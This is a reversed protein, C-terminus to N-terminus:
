GAPRVPFTIVKNDGYWIVMSTTEALLYPLGTPDLLDDAPDLLNFTDQAINSADSEGFILGVFQGILQDPITISFTGDAASLATTNFGTAYRTSGVLLFVVVDTAVGGGQQDVVRGTLTTFGVPDELVDMTKGVFLALSGIYGRFDYTNLTGRACRETDDVTVFNGGWRSWHPLTSDPDDQYDFRYVAFETGEAFPPQAPLEFCVEINQNYEIHAPTNIVAGALQDDVHVEALDQLGQEDATAVAAPDVTPFYRWDADLGLLQDSFLVVVHEDFCGAPFRVFSLKPESLMITREEGVELTQQAIAESTFDDDSVGCGILTLLVALCCIVRM